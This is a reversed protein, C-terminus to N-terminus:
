RTEQTSLFRKLQEEDIAIQRELHSVDLRGYPLSTGFFQSLGYWLRALSLNKINLNLVKHNSGQIERQRILAPLTIEPDSLYSLKLTDVNLASFLLNFNDSHLSFFDILEDYDLLKPMETPDIMIEIDKFIQNLALEVKIAGMLRGDRVISSKGSFAEIPMYFEGPDPQYHLKFILPYKPTEHLRSLRQHLQDRRGGETRKSSEFLLHEIRLVEEANEKEFQKFNTKQIIFNYLIVKDEDSLALLDSKVRKLEQEFRELSLSFKLVHKSQRVMEDFEAVIFKSNSLLFKQCSVDLKAYSNTTQFFILSLFLFFNMFEESERKIANSLLAM